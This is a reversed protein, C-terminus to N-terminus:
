TLKEVLDEVRISGPTVVRANAGRLRLRRGVPSNVFRMADQGFRQVFKACGTHPPETLEVTSTGIRLMTGPPANDISLDFDVYLQDGALPVREEDRAVLTAVRWSMLTLQREPSASGDATSSSRRSRWTDGVLGEECDLVAEILVEREDVGPRRVILMLRGKSSPSGRIWNLSAELAAETLHEHLDHESAPARDV